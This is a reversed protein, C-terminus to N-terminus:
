KRKGFGQAFAIAPTIVPFLAGLVGWVVAWGVSHSQKYGHYASLGSSAASLLGWGVPLAPVAGVQADPEPNYRWPHWARDEELTPHTGAGHQLLWAHTKNDDPETSLVVTPPTWGNM